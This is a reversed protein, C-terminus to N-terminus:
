PTWPIEGAREELVLSPSLAIGKAFNTTMSIPRTHQGEEWLKLEDGLEADESIGYYNEADISAFSASPMDEWRTRLVRIISVIPGTRRDYKSM